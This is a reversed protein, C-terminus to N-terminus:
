KPHCACSGACGITQNKLNDSKKYDTEYFGSGKFSLGRPATLQKSYTSEGCSPCVSLTENVKLLHDQAHGCKSCSYSYIPM